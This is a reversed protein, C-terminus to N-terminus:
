IIDPNLVHLTGSVYLNENSPLVKSINNWKIGLAGSCPFESQSFKPWKRLTEWLTTFSSPSRRLKGEWIEPWHVIKQFLMIALLLFLLYHFDIPRWSWLNRVREGGSRQLELISYKPFRQTWEIHIIKGYSETNGLPSYTVGELSLGCVRIDTGVPIWNTTLPCVLMRSVDWM